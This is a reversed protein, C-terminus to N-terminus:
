PTCAPPEPATGDRGVTGVRFTDPCVRVAMTTLEQGKAIATVLFEGAAVDSITYSGNENEAERPIASQVTGSFSFKNFNIGEFSSGGGGIMAPKYYYSQSSAAITSLDAKLADEASADSASSFLDIALYSAIGVIILVLILLLLQQQGM